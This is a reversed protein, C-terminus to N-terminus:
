SLDIRVEVLGLGPTLALAILRRVAEEYSWAPGYFFEGLYYPVMGRFSGVNGMNLECSDESATILNCDLIKIGCSSVCLSSIM